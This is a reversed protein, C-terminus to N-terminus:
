PNVAKEVQAAASFLAADSWAPGTLQLGWPLGDADRAVPVSISPLGALAAPITFVDSLYMTLPDSTRDGFRFATTPATLGVLVDVQAFAAQHDAIVARRARAAKGYYQDYWGASLAFTGLMIRRQVEPGFGRTRSDLYVDQLSAGDEEVRKGYRIGDFRALNSSAEASALVYYTALAYDTHPLDVPTLEFGVAALAADLVSRADDGLGELCQRPVGARLRDPSRSM